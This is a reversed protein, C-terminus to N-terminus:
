NGIAIWNWGGTSYRVSGGNTTIYKLVALQTNTHWNMAITFYEIASPNSYPSVMAIFTENPFAIPFTISDSYETGAAKFGWQIIIPQKGEEAPLELWGNTANSQTFPLAAKAQATVAAQLMAAIEAPTKADTVDDAQGDAIFQALGAAISSCQLLAKNELASRAVGPQHGQLRMSDGAYDSQSLVNAGQGQAFPLIQNEAM